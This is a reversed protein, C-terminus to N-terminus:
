ISHITVETTTSSTAAQCSNELHAVGAKCAAGVNQRKPDNYILYLVGSLFAVVSWTIGCGPSSFASYLATRTYSVSQYLRGLLM